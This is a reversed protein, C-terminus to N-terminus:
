LENLKFDIFEEGKKVSVVDVVLRKIQKDNFSYRRQLVDIFPKLPNDIDASGSSFGFVVNLEMKPFTQVNNPLIWGLQEAWNIYADTRYRKGRWANNVSFPKIEVKM